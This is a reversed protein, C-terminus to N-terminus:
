KKSSVDPTDYMSAEYLFLHSRLTYGPQVISSFPQIGKKGVLFSYFDSAFYQCNRAIKSYRRDRGMYNLLYRAIMERSALPHALRVDGSYQFQPDIFFCGPGTWEAIFENLDQMTRAPIDSCRIEAQEPVWPLKMYEPLATRLSERAEVPYWTSKGFGAGAVNLRGLEVVTMHEGHDWELVVAAHYTLRDEATEKVGPRKAFRHGLVHARVARPSRPEQQLATIIETGHAVRPGEPHLAFYWLM